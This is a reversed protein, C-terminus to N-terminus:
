QCHILDPAHARTLLSSLYRLSRLGSPAASALWTTSQLLRPARCAGLMVPSACPTAATHPGISTSALRSAMSEGLHPLPQTRGTRAARCTYSGHKSTHAILAWVRRTGLNQAHTRLLRAGNEPWAAACLCALGQLRSAHGQGHLAARIPGASAQPAQLRHHHGSASVHRFLVARARAQRDRPTSPSCPAQPLRCAHAEPQHPGAHASCLCLTKGSEPSGAPHPSCARTTGPAKYDRTIGAQLIQMGHTQEAHLGQCELTALSYSCAGQAYRM